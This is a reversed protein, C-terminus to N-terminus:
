ARSLVTCALAARYVAFPWLRPASSPPILRRAVRTSVASGVVAAALSGLGSTDGGRLRAAVRVGKLAVAGAVIPVSVHTATEYAAPRTLGLLRGATLTAGLRSVGPWLAACQALGYWWGESARLTERTGGRRDALAMAIGGAVLGAAVTRPGGLRQEIPRELLAAAAAPPLTAALIFLSPRVPGLALLTGAHLAVELEKSPEEGLARVALAAHASSSVPLLEAPGHLLGLVLSEAPSPM